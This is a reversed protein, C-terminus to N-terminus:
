NCNVSNWIIEDKGNEKLYTNAKSFNKSGWWGGKNAGLPSPHTAKLVLHKKPNICAGKKQAFGGWLMFVVNSNTDNIHKIIADTFKAWGYKAHSNAQSKTVTLTANLLLVGQDSWSQL